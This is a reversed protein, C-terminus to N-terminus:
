RWLGGKDAGIAASVPLSMAGSQLFSLGLRIHQLLLGGLPAALRLLVEGFRVIRGKPPTAPTNM